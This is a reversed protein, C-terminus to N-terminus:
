PLPVDESGPLPDADGPDGMEDEGVFADFDERVQAWAATLGEQDEYYDVTIHGDSTETLIAGIQNTLFEVEEPNLPTKAFPVAEALTDARLLARYGFGEESLEEDTGELSLGHVAEDILTNFKGPGYSRIEAM